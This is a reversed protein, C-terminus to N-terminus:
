RISAKKNVTRTLVTKGAVCVRKDLLSLTMGAEVKWGCLKM